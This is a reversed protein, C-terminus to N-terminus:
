RSVYPTIVTIVAAITAGAIPIVWHWAMAIPIDGSTLAQNLTSLFVVLVFMAAGGIAAGGNTKPLM